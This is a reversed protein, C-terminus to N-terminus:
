RISFISRERSSFYQLYCPIQAAGGEATQGEPFQSTLRTSANTESSLLLDPRHKKTTAVECIRLVNDSIMGGM